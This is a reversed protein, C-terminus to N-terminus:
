LIKNYLVSGTLSVKNLEVSGDTKFEIIDFGRQSANLFDVYWTDSPIISPRTINGMGHGQGTFVVGNENVEENIIKKTVLHVHEHGTGVIKVGHQAFLPTWNERIAKNMPDAYHYYAPYPSVHFFPFIHRGERAQLTNALWDTQVGVIPQTHLSNLFILSLYNSIDIVGYALDDLNSFFNYAFAVDDKTAGGDYWLLSKFSGDPNNVRGDHNGLCVVMPIMLNREREIQFYKEWYLQWASTRIGDDHVMDGSIIIADISNNHMTTFGQVGETQFNAESNLQDSVMVFKLNRTFVSPMTKFRHIEKHNKLKTEYITNPQLGELKFWRVRRTTNPFPKDAFLEVTQWDFTGEKRFLCEVPTSDVTQYHLMISNSPNSYWTTYAGIEKNEYGIDGDVVWIRANANLWTGNNWIKPIANGQKNELWSKLEPIVWNM